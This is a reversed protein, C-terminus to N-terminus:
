LTKVRNIHVWKTPSIGEHQNFARTFSTLSQFGVHDAVATITMEPNTLLIRKAEDIRLKSIWIRFSCKYTSNIYNSLYQKNTYMTASVDQILASKSCYGKTEIWRKIQSSLYECKEPTLILKAVENEPVLEVVKSNDVLDRFTVMFDLYRNFTYICVSLFYVLYLLLISTHIHTSFAVIVSFIGAGIFGYLSKIMWRIYIDVGEPYLSDGTRIVENYRKFFFCVDNIISILLIAACVMQVIHIIQPDRM